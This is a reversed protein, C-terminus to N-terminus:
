SVDHSASAEAVEEDDDALDEGSEDPQDEATGQVDEGDSDHGSM